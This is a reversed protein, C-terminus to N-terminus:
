SVKRITENSNTSSDRKLVLCSVEVSISFSLNGCLLFYELRFLTADSFGKLALLRFIYEEFQALCIFFGEGQM